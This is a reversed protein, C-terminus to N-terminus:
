RPLPIWVAFRLFCLTLKRRWTSDILCFAGVGLKAPAQVAEDVNGAYLGKAAKRGDVDHTPRSSSSSPNSDRPKPKPLPRREVLPPAGYSGSGSTLAQTSNLSEDMARKLQARFDAEEDDDDDGEAVPTAPRRAANSSGVGFAGGASSSSPGRVHRAVGAKTALSEALTYGTDTLAWRPPRKNQAVVLEKDILTQKGSWASYNARGAEANGARM